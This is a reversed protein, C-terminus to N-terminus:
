TTRAHYAVPGHLGGKFHMEHLVKFSASNGYSQAQRIGKLL